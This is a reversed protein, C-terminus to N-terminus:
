QVHVQALILPLDFPAKKFPTASEEEPLYFYLSIDGTRQKKHDHLLRFGWLRHNGQQSSVLQNIESRILVQSTYRNIKEELRVASPRM